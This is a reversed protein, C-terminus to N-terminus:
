RPSWVALCMGPEKEGLCKLSPGPPLQSSLGWDPLGAVPTATGAIALLPCQSRVLRPLSDLPLLQPLMRPFQAQTGSEWLDYIPARSFLCGQVSSPPWRPGM